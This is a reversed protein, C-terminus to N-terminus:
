FAIRFSKPLHDTAIPLSYTHTPFLPADHFNSFSHDHELVVSFKLHCHPYHDIQPHFPCGKTADSRTPSPREFPYGGKQGNGPLAPASGELINAM